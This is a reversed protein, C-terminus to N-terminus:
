DLIENIDYFLPNELDLIDQKFVDFNKIKHGEEVIKLYCRGSWHKINEDPNVIDDNKGIVIVRPLLVDKQIKYSNIVEETLKEIGNKYYDINKVEKLLEQPNNVPNFLACSVLFKNALANAYFGGMSSGMLIFDDKEQELITSLKEFNEEFCKTYDWPLVAVHSGLVRNLEKASSQGTAMLGHIYFYKM